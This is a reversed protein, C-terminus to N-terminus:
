VLATPNLGLPAPDWDRLGGLAARSPTGCVGTGSRRREARHLARTLGARGTLGPGRPGPEQAGHAQRKQSKQFRSNPATRKCGERHSQGDQKITRHPPLVRINEHESHTPTTPTTAQTAPSM